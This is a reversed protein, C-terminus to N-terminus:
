EGGGVTADDSSSAMLSGAPAFAVDTVGQTSGALSALRTRFRSDWLCVSRCSTFSIPHTATRQGLPALTANM